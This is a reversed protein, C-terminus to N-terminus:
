VLIDALMKPDINGGSIICVSIKDRCEVKGNLIAALSVVGGPEGVLKLTKAAYAVTDMAQDDSVSVGYAGLSKLIAYTHLGPLTTLIADCVSTHGSEVAVREGKELSTGFEDFNEPEVIIAQTKPFDNKVATFLGSSLGGGGCNVLIQHPVLNQAKLDQAIELGTTGQGAIIHVDDYSPVVICGKDAAIAAAIEERDEKYRDYLVIEAGYQQTNEMKVAPADSPMVIIAKVGLMQAACAVGAAHNGSQFLSM